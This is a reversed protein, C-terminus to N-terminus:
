LSQVHGNQVLKIAEKVAIVPSGEVPKGGMEYQGPGAFCDVYALQSSRSGLIKAWSPFYKKLIAHKVGSVRKLHQLEEGGLADAQHENGVHQINGKEESDTLGVRPETQSTPASGKSCKSSVTRVLDNGLKKNLWRIVRANRDM